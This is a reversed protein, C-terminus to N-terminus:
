HTDDDEGQQTPIAADGTEVGDAWSAASTPAELSAALSAEIEVPTGVPELANVDIGLPPEDGVLDPGAWPSHPPQAPIKPMPAIGTVSFPTEKAAFRGGREDSTHDAYSSAEDAQDNRNTM